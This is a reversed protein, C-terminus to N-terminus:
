KEFRDGCVGCRGCGDFCPTTEEMRLAKEREGSLYEKSFGMDLHDWPLCDDIQYNKPEEKKLLRAFEGIGGGKAACLLLRGAPRGFSSLAQQVLSARRSEAKIEINKEKKLLKRLYKLRAGTDAPREWQFPTFPKPVFSNISLSLKGPSYKKAKIVLKALETIDDDTETPLGLMFYLKGGTMGVAAAMSLASLIDDESVGKNIVRRLRESGAEPASTLTRQGSDALARALTLDVADARLSAISFLIGSQALRGTLEKIYPYDCVAAGLLGVKAANLPRETIARWVLELNRSRPRRFCYGAM